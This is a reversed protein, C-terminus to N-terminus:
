VVAAEFGATTTLAGAVGRAEVGAVGLFVTVGVGAADFGEVGTFDVVGDTLEGPEL